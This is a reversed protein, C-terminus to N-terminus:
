LAPTATVKFSITPILGRPSRAGVLIRGSGAAGGNLYTNPIEGTLAPLTQPSGCDDWSLQKLSSERESTIGEYDPGLLIIYINFVGPGELSDPDPPDGLPCPVTITGTVTFSGSPAANSLVGRSGSTLSVQEADTREFTIAAGDVGPVGDAGPAGDAGPTGTQNWSIPTWGRTCAYSPGNALKVEGSQSYCGHIVTKDDIPDFRTVADAVGGAFFAGVVVAAITFTRARM